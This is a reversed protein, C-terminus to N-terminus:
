IMLNKAGAVMVAKSGFLCAEYETMNNIVKFDLRKAMSLMDGELTIMVIGFGAGKTNVAGDFYMRWKQIEIVGLNEDLFKLDQPDDGKIANQVLFEAVVRCKVVKKTIYEIDFETLLVLWRAMKGTLSPTESFYKLPDIKLIGQVKYSHSYHRLKRTAWIM